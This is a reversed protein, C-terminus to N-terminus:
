ILYNIAEPYWNDIGDVVHKSIYKLVNREIIYAREPWASYKNEFNDEELTDCYIKLGQPVVVKRAAYIREQISKHQTTTHSHSIPWEDAAHAESIYIVIINIKEFFRENM